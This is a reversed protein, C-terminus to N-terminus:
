EWVVKELGGAVKSLLELRPLPNHRSDCRDCLANHVVLVCRSVRVTETITYFIVHQFDFVPCLRSM